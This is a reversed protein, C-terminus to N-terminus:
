PCTVGSVLSRMQKNKVASINRYVNSTCLSASLKLVLRSLNRSEVSGHILRIRSFLHGEYRLTACQAQWKLVTTVTACLSDCRCRGFHCCCGPYWFLKRLIAQCDVRVSNPLKQVVGERQNKRLETIRSTVLTIMQVLNFSWVVIQGMKESSAGREFRLFLFIQLSSFRKQRWLIIWRYLGHFHKQIVSLFHEFTCRQRMPVWPPAPWDFSLVSFVRHNTWTPPLCFCTSANPSFLACSGCPAPSSDRGINSLM